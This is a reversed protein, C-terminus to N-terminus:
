QVIVEELPMRASWTEAKEEEGYGMAFVVLPTGKLSPFLEHVSIREEQVEILQSIPLCRIGILAAELCLKEFIQGAKVQTIRNDFPSGLVAMLPASQLVKQEQESLRLGAKQVSADNVQGSEPLYRKLDNNGMHTSKIIEKRFQPDGYLIINAHAAFQALREKVKPDGSVELWIDEETLFKEILELDKESVVRSDFPRHYTHRKTIADFLEPSRLATSQSITTFKVRAVWEQNGPEPFHSVQHGIKFHEAAILLNELACGVSLFLERKDPDAAELWHSKNVYVNVQSDELSFKWPQSNYYSQALVAYNLLFQLKEHTSGERPFDKENVLWSKVNQKEARQKM